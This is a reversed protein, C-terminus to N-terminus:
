RPRESQIQAAVSRSKGQRERREREQVWDSLLDHREGERVRTQEALYTRYTDRESESRSPVRSPDSQASLLTQLFNSM